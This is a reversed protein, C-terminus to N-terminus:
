ADIVLDELPKACCLLIKNELKDRPRLGGNDTMSVTGKKLTAVCTGCLGQGCSSPLTIGSRAAAELVPTGADCDVIQGSRLLEVTFQGTSAEPAAPEALTFSEEHYRDMGLGADTLMSRVATMYGEPGCVFVERDLFDPAIQRLMEINLRGHHRNWRETPGDGECVHVVRIRDSTREMLALEQRFIIDDPTRASHVFVVDVPQALDSVTRTMSMLPTVGSGGSLFLYKPAPHWSTSFEGFPGQARVEMGPVVNDHLWNSVRGGPERKVTISARHPRTPPSSLTYCRNLKEGDVEVTVTLYQGPEHFFLRSEVSEFVFTRVDSTIQQVSRCVLRQDQADAWDGRGTLM